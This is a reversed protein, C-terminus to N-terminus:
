SLAAVQNNSFVAGGAAYLRDFSV